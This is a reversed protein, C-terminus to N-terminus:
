KIRGELRPSQSVGLVMMECVRLFSFFVCVFRGSVCRVGYLLTVLQIFEASVLPQPEGEGKKNRPSQCLMTQAGEKEREAAPASQRCITVIDCLTWVGRRALNESNSV